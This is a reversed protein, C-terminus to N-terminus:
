SLERWASLPGRYSYSSGPPIIVASTLVPAYGTGNITTATIIVGDVTWGCQVSNNTTGWASASIPKGTTNYYTTAAVRTPSQWTQNVGLGAVLSNATGTCNTLVGSTPTGLLPSVMTMSTSTCASINGSAVTGLVAGNALTTAGSSSLTGTVAVGTSTVAVVTSGNSQLNLNGSADATTAVGGGPGTSANISSAM